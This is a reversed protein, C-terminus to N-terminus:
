QATRRIGASWVFGSDSGVLVKTWKEYTGVLQVETGTSLMSKVPASLFPYKRLRIGGRGVKGSIPDSYRENLEPEPLHPFNTKFAYEMIDQMDAAYVGKRKLQPYLSAFLKSRVAGPYNELDFSAAFRQLVEDGLVNITMLTKRCKDCRGCNNVDVLCVTLFDYSAPFKSVIETKEFRTWARNASYFETNGTGLLPLLWKEYEATDGDLSLAFRGLNHASSYYYRGFLKQMVIAAAINRFTHTVYFQSKGLFNRYFASINSDIVVLPYDNVRAFERVKELQGEFLERSSLRSKGLRWDYGHHAGVNFYTLHTIAYGPLPTDRGYEALTAFSDIGLSMGCGVGDGDFTTEIVAMDLKLNRTKSGPALELQPIVHNVLNYYLKLSIPLRSEIVDYGERMAMPLIAVVAADARDTTLYEAFENEVQFWLDTTGATTKVNFSLRFGSGDTAIVKEVSEILVKRMRGM